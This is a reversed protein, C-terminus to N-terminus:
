RIHPHFICRGKDDCLSAMEDEAALKSRMAIADNVENTMFPHDEENASRITTKEWDSPTLSSNMNDYTTQRRHSSNGKGGMHTLRSMLKRGSKTLSGDDSEISKKPSINNSDPSLNGDDYHALNVDDYSM